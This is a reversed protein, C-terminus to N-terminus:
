SRRRHHSQVHHAVSLSFNRIGPYLVPAPAAAAFPAVATSSGGPIGHGVVRIRQGIGGRGVTVLDRAGLVLNGAQLPLKLLDATARGIIHRPQLVLHLLGSINQGGLPIRLPNGGTHGGLLADVGQAIGDAFLVLDDLGLVPLDAGQLIPQLVVVLLDIRDVAAQGRGLALAGGGFLASGPGGAM